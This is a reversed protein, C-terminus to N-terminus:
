KGSKLLKSNKDVEIKKKKQPTVENVSKLQTVCPPLIYNFRNFQIDQVLGNFDLLNLDTETVSSQMSCQKLWLYIRKDISSIMNAIYKNDLHIRTQLLLQNSSCFNSLMQLGQSMYGNRKFFFSALVHLAKIHHIMKDVDVWFVIKTKTIKDLSIPSMDFKTAHDLFMGVHLTDSRYIVESAIVSAAFGSQSLSNKWLFSGYLLTAATASSVSFDNGEAELLSNLMVQANVTNTCKFFELADADYGLQTVESVSTAVLMM